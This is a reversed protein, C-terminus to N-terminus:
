PHAAVEVADMPTKAINYLRAGATLATFQHYIGAPTDACQGECLTLTEGLSVTLGHEMKFQGKACISIHAGNEDHTHAELVDGANEFTYVVGV